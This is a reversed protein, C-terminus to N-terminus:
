AASQLWDERRASIISLANKSLYRHEAEWDESYEILYMTILRIYSMQSPFVGIVRSRRRVERNIRELVNTSSIRRKDVEPYEYFQLSDELGDMLCDIAAQYRDEYDSSLLNAAKIAEEKNPQIWVQKLREGFIAKDRHPIHAMINRM